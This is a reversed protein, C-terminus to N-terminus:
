RRPPRRHDTHGPTFRVAMLQGKTNIVLHMKFGFVRGATTKGGAALGKLGAIVPAAPTTACQCGPATSSPSAPRKAARARNHLLLMDPPLLRPMLSVFRGLSPLDGCCDRSQGAIAHFRSRTCNRDPSLHFLAISVMMDSRTLKTHRSRQPHLPRPSTTGM